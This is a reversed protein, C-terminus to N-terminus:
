VEDIYAFHKMLADVPHGQRDLLFLDFCCNCVYSPNEKFLYCDLVIRQAMNKRCCLCLKKAINPKFTRLPYKSSEGDRLSNYQRINNFIIRHECNGQHLFCCRQYLPIEMQGIVAKHQLVKYPPRIFNSEKKKKYFELICASYDLASPSRLDPYLVGDIYYVSGEFQPLGYNSSDFCFFVDTLDALTQSSLIEYEAIKIGRIPHYFSVSIIFTENSSLNQLPPSVLLPRKAEGVYLTNLLNQNIYVGKLLSNNFDCVLKFTKSLTKGKLKAIIQYKSFPNKETPPLWPVFCKTRNLVREKKSNSAEKRLAELDVKQQWNKCNHLVIHNIIEGVNPCRVGSQLAGILPGCSAAKAEKSLPDGPAALQTGEISTVIHPAGGRLRREVRQCEEQFDNLRVKAPTFTGPPTHYIWEWRLEKSIPLDPHKEFLHCPQRGTLESDDHSKSNLSALLSPGEEGPEEASPQKTCKAGGGHDASSHPSNTHRSSSHRSSSHRSSGGTHGRCGKGGGKRSNSTDRKAISKLYSMFLRENESETESGCVSGLSSAGGERLVDGVGTTGRSRSEERERQKIKYFDYGDTEFLLKVPFHPIPLSLSQDKREDM